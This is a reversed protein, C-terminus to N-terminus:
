AGSNIKKDAAPDNFLVYDLALAANKQASKIAHSYIDLLTSANSHGTREQLTRLDVGATIQLTSFTHRLGHPTIYPLDNKKIFKRLWHNITDPSIPKGNGQIFLREKEGQWQDGLNMKNERWWQRYEILVAIVFATVDIQRDSTKNKTTVETVGKGEQYQSARSVTITQNQFDIDQWELGCLEGRRIGSFLFLVFAAKLRKDTEAKIAALFQRAEDDDLYRVNKRPLKPPKMFESAVNHPIIRAQKAAALVARIFGHHHKITRDALKGSHEQVTFVEALPKELAACLKRATEVKVNKGRAACVITDVCLGTLESLKRQTMGAKKREDEFTSSSAFREVGKIGDERLNVLFRQIHEARIKELPLHGIAKNTRVLCYNYQERTKAALESVEIYHAAYDAFKTKGDVSVVGSRVSEEFLVAQKEAEKDAASESMPKGSKTLPPNWTTTKVIQNGDSDREVLVRIYYSATGNKHMRKTINAM